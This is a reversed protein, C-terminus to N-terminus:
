DETPSKRKLSLKLVPKPISDSDTSDDDEHEEEDHSDDDDEEADGEDALTEELLYKHINREEWPAGDFGGAKVAEVFIQTLHYTCRGGALFVMRVVNEDQLSVFAHVDLVFKLMQKNDWHVETDQDYELENDPAFDSRDWIQALDGMNYCDEFMDSLESKEVKVTSCLQRIADNQFFPSGIKQGFFWLNYCATKAESFDIGYLWRSFVELLDYISNYDFIKRFKEVSQGLLEEAQFCRKKTSKCIDRFRSSVACALVEPLHLVRTPEDEESCDVTIVGSTPLKEHVEKSVRGIVNSGAM